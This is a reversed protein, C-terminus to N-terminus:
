RNCARERLDSYMIPFILGSRAGRAVSKRAKVMRMAFSVWRTTSFSLTYLSCEVIQLFCRTSLWVATATARPPTLVRRPKASAAPAELFSHGAITGSCYGVVVAAALITLPLAFAM